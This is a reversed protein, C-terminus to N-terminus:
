GNVGRDRKRYKRPPTAGQSKLFKRVANDSVGLNRGTKAYGQTQVMDLVEQLTGWRGKKSQPPLCGRCWRSSRWIEKGCGQCTRPPSKQYYRRRAEQALGPNPEPAETVGAHVERHCNACLLVCLELERTLTTMSRNLSNSVGLTKLDEHLHHFELANPTRHYGCVQCRGGFAEVLFSKTERRNRKVHERVCALCVKRKTVGQIRHEMGPGHVRCEALTRPAVKRGM